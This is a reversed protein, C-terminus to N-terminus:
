ATVKPCPLGFHAPHEDFLQRAWQLGEDDPTGLELLRERTIPGITSPGQDLTLALHSPHVGRIDVAHSDVRVIWAHVLSGDTDIEAWLAGHTREQLALAFEQCLGSVFETVTFEDIPGHPRFLNDPMVYPKRSM